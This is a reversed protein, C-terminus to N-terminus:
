EGSFAAKKAWCYRGPTTCMWFGAYVLCNTLTLAQEQTLDGQRILLRLDWGRRGATALVARRLLPTDGLAELVRLPQLDRGRRLPRPPLADHLAEAARACRDLAAEEAEAALVSQRQHKKEAALHTKWWVFRLPRLLLPLLLPVAACPLVVACPAQEAQLVTWLGLALEWWLLLFLKWGRAAPRDLRSRAPDIKELLVVQNSEALTRAARTFVTNTVVMAADCQYKAMGAVAQQVASIGVPHTYYKCQIAWRKGHQRATIDVGYDGSAQTVRVQTYGHWRLYRAVAYEYDQGTM